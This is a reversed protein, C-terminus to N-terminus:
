DEEARVARYGSWRSRRQVFVMAQERSYASTWDEHINDNRRDFEAIAPERHELFVHYRTRPKRPKLRRITKVYRIRSAPISSITCCVEPIGFPVPHHVYERLGVDAPPEGGYRDTYLDPFTEGVVCKDIEGEAISVELVAMGSLGAEVAVKLNPFFFLMEGSAILGDKLISNVSEVATCHYLKTTQLNAQLLGAAHPMDNLMFKAMLMTFMANFIDEFMM